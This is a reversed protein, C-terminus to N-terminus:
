LKSKEKSEENEEPFYKAACDPCIGHSFQAESHRSLYEEVKEWYGEDDRINKCYSCIPIIGRLQKIENDARELARNKEQLFEVTKARTYEMTFTLGSVLIYILLFRITDYSEYQYNQGPLMNTLMLILPIAHIAQIIGGKKVGLFSAFYIPLVLAWYPAHAQGVGNYILVLITIATLIIFAQFFYRRYRSKVIFYTFVTLAIVVLSAYIFEEYTKSMLDDILLVISIALIFGYGIIFFAAQRDSDKTINEM